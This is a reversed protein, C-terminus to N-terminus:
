YDPVGILTVAGKTVEATAGGSSQLEQFMRWPSATDSIITSLDVWGSSVTTFNTDGSHSIEGFLGEGSINIQSSVTQGSDGIKIDAIYQAKVSMNAPAIDDLPPLYGPSDGVASYSSTTTPFANAINFHVTNQFPSQDVGFGLEPYSIVRPFNVVSDDRTNGRVLEPNQVYAGSFVNRGRSNLDDIDTIGGTNHLDGHVRNSLGGEFLVCKGDSHLASTIQMLSGEIFVNNPETPIRWGTEGVNNSGGITMKNGEYYTPEPQSNPSFVWIREVQDIWGTKVEWFKGSTIDWVWEGANKGQGQVSGDIWVRGNRPVSDDTGVHLMDVGNLTIDGRHIWFIPVNAVPQFDLTIDGASFISDGSSLNNFVSELETADGAVHDAINVIEDTDLTETTTSQNDVDSEVVGDDNTDIPDYTM